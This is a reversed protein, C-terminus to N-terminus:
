RRDVHDAADGGLLFREIALALGHEDVSPAVWDSAAQVDPTANGMAIGMGAWRIMSIDNGSDGIALTEAQPIGFRDALFALAQGKTACPSLVESFLAHSRVVSLRDAFRARLEDLLDDNAAADSIFLGKIAHQGEAAMRQCAEAFSSVQQMPLGFWRDYFTPPHHMFVHYLAEESYLTLDLRRDEAFALVERFPERPLPEVLLAARDTTLEKVMAGQFCIVPDTLGLAAAYRSASAYPRGTALVIRLGAARAAAVAACVRPAPLAGDVAATGDYDFALLRYM